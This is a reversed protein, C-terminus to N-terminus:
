TVRLVGKMGAAAHGPLTCLYPYNGPKAFTVKLSTTEGPDINPTQKGNIRLNHPIGGNNKLKFTVTGTHVTQTSLAFHFETGVVRVTSSAPAKAATKKEGAHEEAGGPTAAKAPGLKGDLGFLWLDDGHASGALASGAAYFAVVQRGDLSFVSATNNAGAGTQFSWLRNGNRADYAQLHGDNRGVFVLNGATTTSGSYCSDEFQKQWAIRNTAGNIATFTGSPTGQPAIASGYFQKGSRYVATKGGEFLQAQQIGCVYLFGTKQNFSM